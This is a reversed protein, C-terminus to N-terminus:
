SARNLFSCPRDGPQAAGGHPSQRCSADLVVGHENNCTHCEGTEVPFSLSTGCYQLFGRSGSLYVSLIRDLSHLHAVLSRPSVLHGAPTIECSFLPECGAARTAM